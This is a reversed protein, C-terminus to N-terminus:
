RHWPREQYSVGAPPVVMPKYRWDHYSVGAPAHDHDGFIEHKSLGSQDNM